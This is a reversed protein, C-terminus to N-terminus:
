SVESLIDKRGFTWLSAALPLLFWLGFVAGIAGLPWQEGLTESLWVADAPTGRLAHFLAETAGLPNLRDFTKWHGAVTRCALPFAIGVVTGYLTAHSRSRLAIFQILPFLLVAQAASFLARLPGSFGGPSVFPAQAGYIAEALLAGALWIALSGAALGFIWAFAILLKAVVFPWRRPHRVLITKWTDSSQEFGSGWAVIVPPVFACVGAWFYSWGQLGGAFGFSDLLVLQHTGHAFIQVSIIVASLGWVVALLSRATTLKVQKLWEAALLWWM